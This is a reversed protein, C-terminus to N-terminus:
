GCLLPGNIHLDGAQPAFNLGVGFVGTVQLGHAARTIHDDWVLGELLAGLTVAPIVMARGWLTNTLLKSVSNTVNKHTTAKYAEGTPISIDRNGANM